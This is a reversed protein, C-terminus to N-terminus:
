ACLVKGAKMLSVVEVHALCGTFDMGSHWKESGFAAHDRECGNPHRTLMPIANYSYLKGNIFHEDSRRGRGWIGLTSNLIQLGLV